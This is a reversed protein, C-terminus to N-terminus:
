PTAPTLGAKAGGMSEVVKTTRRLAQLLRPRTTSGYDKTRLAQRVDLVRHPTKKTMLLPVYEAKSVTFRRAGPSRTFTFRTLLGEANAKGPTDHDALLNGLGYVVWTRGIKQVPEVVHAHHSIILDIKGSKALRPALYAQDASPTQQYEQGWHLSTVVVDAGAKRARAADKLVTSEQLLNARWTQGQPYDIGNFGYTYSLFAIKAGNVRLMTIRRAEKQTRASGTHRLGAADLRALTRDIGDGGQDFTHNSATSCVDYGTAALGAAIQPPGSFSPYSSYPGGPPALPTELHCLGVDASEVYTRVEDMMPAFDLRSRGTAQADRKAQIWLPKHLLVDGTAVLTFQDPAPTTPSPPSVSATSAPRRPEDDM